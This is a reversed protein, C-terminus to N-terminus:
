GRISVVFGQLRYGEALREASSHGRVTGAFFWGPSFPYRYYVRYMHRHRYEHRYDRPYEHAGAVAPVALPSVLGLTTVSALLFKRFM